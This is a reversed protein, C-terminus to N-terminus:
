GGIPPLPGSAAEAVRDPADTVICEAGWRRFMLAEVPDNVTYIALQYGAARIAEVRHATLHRCSVHLSVCGLESLIRRWAKPPRAAILARPYREGERLAIELCRAQFSSLMATRAPDLASTELVALIARTTEEERGRAPKIELNARLGLSEMAELAASLSPIGEGAFQSGFSSGVDTAALQAATMTEVVGRRPSTRGLTHDHHLVPVGDSSLMVDLEVWTCGAGAAVRLGALTNEPGLLAAGRHGMFAPLEFGHHM